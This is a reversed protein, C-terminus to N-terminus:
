GLIGDLCLCLRCREEDEDEEEEEDDDDLSLPSLRRRLCLCLDWLFCPLSELRRLSTLPNLSQGKEKHSPKHAKQLLWRGCGWGRGGGGGRERRRQWSRSWCSTRTLQVRGGERKGGEVRTHETHQCAHPNPKSGKSGNGREPSHFQM